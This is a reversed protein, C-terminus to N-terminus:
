ASPGPGATRRPSRRRRGPACRGARRCGHPRPAPPTRSAPVGPWGAPASRAARERLDAEGAARALPRSQGRMTASTRPTVTRTGTTLSDVASPAACTRPGRHRGRGRGASRRGPLDRADLAGDLGIGGGRGDVVLGEAAPRGDIGADEAKGLVAQRVGMHHGAPASAQGWGARGSRGSRVLCAFSCGLHRFGVAAFALLEVGVDGGGVPGEVQLARSGVVPAHLAPEGADERRAGAVGDHQGDVVAVELAGGAAQLPHVHVDHREQGLDIGEEAGAADEARGHGRVGSM